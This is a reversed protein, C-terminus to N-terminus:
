RRCGSLRTTPRQLPAAGPTVESYEMLKHYKDGLEGVFVTGGVRKLLLLKDFLNSVIINAAQADHV